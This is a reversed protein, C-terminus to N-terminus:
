LRVATVEGGSELDLAIAARVAEAATAGVQMAGLALREGSGWAFFRAQSQIWGEGWWERVAGAPTIVIFVGEIKAPDGERKDLWAVCGEQHQTSGSYGWLHGDSTRGVKQISGARAGNGSNIQTDAALVGDRYAITTM